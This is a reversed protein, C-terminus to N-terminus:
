HNVRSLPDLSMFGQIMGEKIIWATLVVRWFDQHPMARVKAAILKPYLYELYSKVLYHFHVSSVICALPCQASKSRKELRM